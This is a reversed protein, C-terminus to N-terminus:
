IVPKHTIDERVVFKATARIKLDQQITKEGYITIIYPAIEKKISRIKVYIAHQCNKVIIRKM